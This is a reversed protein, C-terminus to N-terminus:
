LYNFSEKIFPKSVSIISICIYRNTWTRADTMIDIIELDEYSAVEILLATEIPDNCEQQM